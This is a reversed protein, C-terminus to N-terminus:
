LLRLPQSHLKLGFSQLVARSFGQPQNIGLTCLQGMAAAASVILMMTTKKLM